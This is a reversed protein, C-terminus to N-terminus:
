VVVNKPSENPFDKNATWRLRGQGDNLSLELEGRRELTRLANSVAVGPNIFAALASPCEERIAAQVQKLTWWRDSRSLVKRSLDVIKPPRRSIDRSDVASAKAPTALIQPGFVHLLAVLAHRVYLIRKQVEAQRLRLSVIESQIREIAPQSGSSLNPSNTGGDLIISLTGSSATTVQTATAVM